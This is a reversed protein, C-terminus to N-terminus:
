KRCGVARQEPSAAPHDSPDQEHDTNRGAAERDGCLRYRRRELHGTRKRGTVVPVGAPISITQSGDQYRVVLTSSAGKQVTGNTMRSHSVAPSSVSGNTMRSHTTAGPADTLVSNLLTNTTGRYGMKHNLGALVVDNREGAQRRSHVPKKPVLFLWIGKVGPPRGPDPGAGPARHKGVTRPSGAWIWMKSGSAPIHRGAAARRTVIDAFCTGAQPESLCMTGFFRGTLMPKVFTEIQEPTGHALLLNANGLTLLPYASTAVNAAQFWTFCAAAVAHPPQLGGVAADLGATLLGTEAFSDLAARVQPILRVRQGDFTPEALDAARNHPAFQETAVREALDLADDFTERSHEAYRPREVLESVRLWEHLLFDLDRRSLLTSPM